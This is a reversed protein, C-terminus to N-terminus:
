DAIAKAVHYTIGGALGVSACFLAAYGTAADPRWGTSGLATLLGAGVAAGGITTIATGKIMEGVDFGALGDHKPTPSDAYATAPGAFVGGVVGTAVGLAAMQLGFRVDM